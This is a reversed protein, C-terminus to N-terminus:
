TRLDDKETGLSEMADQPIKQDKNYGNNKTCNKHFFFIYRKVAKKGTSVQDCM